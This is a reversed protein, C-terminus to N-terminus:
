DGQPTHLTNMGKENLEYMQIIDRARQLNAEEGQDRLFERLEDASLVCDEGSYRNFIEELEPRSMLRTCFEEIEHEELRENNSRDCEKFLRYAYIDNMDINIMRLMNKIEKFSMKNDKNKDAQHLIDHIWTPHSTLFSCFGIPLVFGPFKFRGGGGGCFPYQELKERQSMAEARAMLKTLGRVWCQAEDICRAALDLNKRKGRFVITFCQAEPFSGGFKRLGESQCGERVSEIHLISFVHKSHARKFRTEFWITMGDEQLRYLRQKQQRPGKIKWFLSGKLMMKIDEDDALCADKFTDLSLEVLDVM